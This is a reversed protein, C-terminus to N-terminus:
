RLAARATRLFQVAGATGLGLIGAAAATGSASRRGPLLAAALLGSFTTALRMPREGVTVVGIDTFGAAGARARAYELAVVAAGASTALRSPAGLRTLAVLAAADAVRDAMSDVVSGWASASGALVAVSGDVGDALASLALAGAAALPRRGAAGAAAVGSVVGALTVATAPVGKAALPRAVAEVLTLWRDAAGAPPPQYGGHLASWRSRYVAREPLPTM